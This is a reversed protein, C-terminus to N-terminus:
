RAEPALLKWQGDIQRFHMPQAGAPTGSDVELELSGDPLEHRSLVSMGVFEERAQELMSEGSSGHAEAVARLQEATRPEFAQLFNTFDLNQIAWMLSQLTDDATGYGVLRANTRLLFGPPLDASAPTNTALTAVRARLMKNEATVGTLALKRETLRTVESRLKLLESSVTVATASPEQPAREPTERTRMPADAIRGQLLKDERQLASLSRQQAVVGWLAGLCLLTLPGVIFLRSKM